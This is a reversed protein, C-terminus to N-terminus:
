RKTARAYGYKAACRSPSGRIVRRRGRVRQNLLRRHRALRRSSRCVRDGPARRQERPSCLFAAACPATSSEFHRTAHIDHSLARRARAEGSVSRQRSSLGRLSDQRPTDRFRNTTDAAAHHESLSAPTTTPSHATGASASPSARRTISRPVSTRATTSIILPAIQTRSWSAAAPQRRKVFRAHIFLSHPLAPRGGLNAISM